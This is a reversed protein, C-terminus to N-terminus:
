EKILTHLNSAFSYYPMSLQSGIRLASSELSSLGADAKVGHDFSADLSGVTDRPLASAYVVVPALETAAAHNLAAAAASKAYTVPTNASTRFVTVTSVLIAVSAVAAITKRTSM